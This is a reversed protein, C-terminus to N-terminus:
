YPSDRYGDVHVDGGGAGEEGGGSSSGSGPRARRPLTATAELRDSSVTVSTTQSRYGDRSFVLELETGEASLDAPLEVEAPTPGYAHEGIHVMAGPPSSRLSLLVIRPAPAPLPEVTPTAPGAPEPAEPAEAVGETAARRPPPATATPARGYAWYAAAAAALLGSTIVLAALGRV